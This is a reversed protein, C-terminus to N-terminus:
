RKRTGPLVGTWTGGIALILGGLWLLPRHEEVFTRGSNAACAVTEPNTEGPCEQKLEMSLIGGVVTLMLALPVVWLVGFLIRRM